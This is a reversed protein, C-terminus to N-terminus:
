HGLVVCGMDLLWSYINILVSQINEQMKPTKCHACQLALGRQAAARGGGGVGQLAGGGGHGCGEM